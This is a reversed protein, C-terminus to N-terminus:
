AQEKNSGAGKAKSRSLLLRREAVILVCMAVTRRQEQEQAVCPAEQLPLRMDCRGLVLAGAPRSPRSITFEDPLTKGGAHHRHSILGRRKKENQARSLVASLRPTEEDSDFYDIRPM